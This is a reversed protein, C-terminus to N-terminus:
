TLLAKGKQALDVDYNTSSAAAYFTLHACNVVWNLRFNVNLLRNIVGLGEALLVRRTKDAQPIIAAANVVLGAFLKCCLLV